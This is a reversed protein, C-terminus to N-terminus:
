RIDLPIAFIAASLPMAISVVTDVLIMALKEDAGDVDLGMIRLFIMISVILGIALAIWTLIMFRARFRDFPHATAPSQSPSPIPPPLSSNTENM